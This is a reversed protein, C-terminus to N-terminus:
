WQVSPKVSEDAQSQSPSFVGITSVYHLFKPKATIAMRIIEKTSEVNCEKLVICFVISALLQVIIANETVLIHFFLTSQQAM